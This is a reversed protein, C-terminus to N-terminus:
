RAGLRAVGIAQRYDAIQRRMVRNSMSRELKQRQRSYDQERLGAQQFRRIMGVIGRLGILL